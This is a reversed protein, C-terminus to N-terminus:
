NGVGGSLLVKLVVAAEKKVRQGFCLCFICDKGSGMVFTSSDLNLAEQNGSLWSLHMWEKWTRPIFWPRYPVQIIPTVTKM